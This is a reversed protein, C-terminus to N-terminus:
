SEKLEIKIQRTIQCFNGGVTVKRDSGGMLCVLLAEEISASFIGGFVRTSKFEVAYERILQYNSIKRNILTSM